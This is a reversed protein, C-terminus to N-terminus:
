EAPANMLGDWLYDYYEWAGTNGVHYPNSADLGAGFSAIVDAADFTSGDHFTVGERLDCTWVTLDENATCETALAPVAVGETDYNYLGDIIQQCTDLSEGDTEDACYLSIPEANKMFVLTDNGPDILSMIPAGFLPKNLGPMGARAAYAIASHVIPVMPVFEKIANNAEAYLPLTDEVVAMRSAAQLPEYIEPIPDGFQLGNASFHYDLFNTPHPYDGTWGLLHFGDLRGNGSEDLFEGSELVEITATIGLNEQLQTQIEVAVPGPEPLYDRVVDRYRITTEFGDPYGADALQQRAEEPNFEYWSDGECGGPISCPTFHTAVQSLEPYFTSVIRERDIGKAIAQRVNVDDFPPFTNTMGIYFINPSLSPVLELAPDADVTAFDDAALNTIYDATGAQLELLRSASEPAWRFVLTDAIAPTGWYDDFRSMIISDGRNWSDLKYAGTGIPSSLLDGGGGTAAIHESPQIGFVTFGLKALFAPDPACLNFVVTSDDTAVISEVKGGYECGDASVVSMGEPMAAEEPEATAEEVVPEETPEPMAEEVAAEVTPALETAAAELTPALEEAAAQITPAVEQAAQQVQQAAEPSCAALALSL